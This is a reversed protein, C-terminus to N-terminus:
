KPLLAGSALSRHLEAIAEAFARSAGSAVLADVHGEPPIEVLRAGLSAALQRPTVPPGVLDVVESRAPPEALCRAALRGAEAASVAPIPADAPLLSPYVGDRAAANELFYGARIVTVRAGTARLLDEALRLHAAPGNGEALSAAIASLLVVHPVGSAEVARAMAAAMRRRGADFDAARPDEPLLAFFGAAGRLGEALADADDLSAVAVEAGRARWPAGKGPDRVLARVPKGQALLTGACVSGTRGSVGAVVFM